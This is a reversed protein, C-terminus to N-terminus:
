LLNSISEFKRELRADEQQCIQATKAVSDTAADEVYSKQTLVHTLEAINVDDM